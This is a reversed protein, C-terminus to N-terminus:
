RATASQDHELNEFQDKQHFGPTPAAPEPWLNTLDNSGGIELPIFHDVEFAGPAQPYIVGYEAYVTLM